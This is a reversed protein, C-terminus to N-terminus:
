ATQRLESAPRAYAAAIVRAESDSLCPRAVRMAAAGGQCLLNPGQDSAHFMATTAESLLLTECELGFASVIHHQDLAFHHYQFDPGPPTSSIGNLGLLKRAAVFVEPEAFYLECMPGRLLIRHQPSVVVPAYPAGVGLADVPITIPWQAEPVDGDLARAGVWQVQQFGADRTQVKHQNTLWEIPIEGDDTNVLTAPGFCPVSQFQGYTARMDNAPDDDVDHVATIPYDTGPVLEESVLYGLRDGGIEVRDLYISGGGPKALVLVADDYILGSAVFTGDPTEVVGTQNADEGVDVADKDGDFYSDDDNVTIKLRDTTFDYNPDLQFTGTMGDYAIADAAYAYIVHTAM